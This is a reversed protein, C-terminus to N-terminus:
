FTSKNQPNQECISVLSKTIVYFYLKQLWFFFSHVALLLKNIYITFFNAFNIKIRARSQLKRWINKKLLQSKSSDFDSNSTDVNATMSQCQWKCQLNTTKVITEKSM